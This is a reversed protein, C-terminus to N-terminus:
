TRIRGSASSAPHNLSLGHHLACAADFAFYCDHRSGAGRRTGADAGSLGAGHHQRALARADQEDVNVGLAGLLGAAHDSVISAFRLDESAVQGFRRLSFGHHPSRHLGETGDVDQDVVDAHGGESCDHVGTFLGPVPGQVDVEAGGEQRGLVRHRYHGVLTGSRDHIDREM